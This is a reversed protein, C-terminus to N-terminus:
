RSFDVIDSLSLFFKVSGEGTGDDVEGIFRVINGHAPVDGMFAIKNGMLIEDSKSFGDACYCVLFSRPRGATVTFMICEHFRLRSSLSATPFSMRFCFPVFHRGLPVYGYQGATCDAARGGMRGARRRGVVSAGPPRVVRRGAGDCVVVVSM